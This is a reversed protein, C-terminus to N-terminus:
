ATQTLAFKIRLSTRQCPTYRPHGLAALGPIYWDGEAAYDTNLTVRLM